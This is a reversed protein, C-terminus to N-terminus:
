RHVTQIVSAASGAINSNGSYTVIIKTGGLPLSSITLRAKGNGLQATGLVTNRATFTVSGKPIVTPSTITATFTVAQGQTSPNRSSSIAAASTTPQVVQNLLPSASKQNTADGLYLATLMYLDAKLDSRTLSATGSANLTATGIGHTGGKFIVEGTPMVPNSSMVSAKWVVTQGYISPNLSSTLSTTTSYRYNLLVGVSGRGRCNVNTCGNAVVADPKGNGNVDAVAVSQALFGGSDYALASQFTGDGNGLLVGVVGGGPGCGSDGAPACNAVVLDLM